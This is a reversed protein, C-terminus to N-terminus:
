VSSKNGCCWHFPRPGTIVVMVNIAAKLQRHFREGYWKGRPSVGSYAFAKIGLCQTLANFMYSEFQRGQDSTIRLPVGFRAIWGELLARAM